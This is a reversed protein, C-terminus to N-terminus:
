AAKFRTADEKDRTRSNTTQLNISNTTGNAILSLYKSNALGVTLSEMTIGGIAGNQNGANTVTIPIFNVVGRCLLLANTSVQFNPPNPIPSPGSTGAFAIAPIVAMILLLIAMKTQRM